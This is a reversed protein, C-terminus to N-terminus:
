IKSKEQYASSKKKKEYYSSMEFFHYSMLIKDNSIDIKLNM